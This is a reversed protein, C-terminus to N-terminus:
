THVGGFIRAKEHPRRDQDLPGRGGPFERFDGFFEGGSGDWLWGGDVGRRQSCGCRLTGPIELSVAPVTVGAVVRVVLGVAAGDVQHVSRRVGPNFMRRHPAGDTASGHSIAPPRELGNVVVPVAGQRVALTCPRGPWWPPARQAEREQDEEDPAQDLPQEGPRRRTRVRPVLM